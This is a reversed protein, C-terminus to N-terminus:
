GVPVVWPPVWTQIPVEILTPYMRPNRTAEALAQPLSEWSSVRLAEWGFARALQVYDPNHLNVAVTRGEFRLNQEAKVAGFGGDNFLVVTIGLDYQRATAMEHITFLAGGDGVMAVVPRKPNAVKAGLAAPLAYGLTGLGGPFLNARPEYVDLATGIWYCVMTYDHAFITDRPVSQSIQDLIAQVAPVHRRVFDRRRARMADVQAWPARPAPERAALRDYLGSLAKAADGIVGVEAPYRRGIETPDLDLHVIPEPFRVRGFGTIMDDFRTGVALLCDAEDLPTSSLMANWWGMGLALPHDDPLAGRGTTTTLVACQLHEALRRLPASADAARVGGGALILPRRSRALAAAAAELQEPPPAPREYRAPAAGIAVPERRNFLEHPVEVFVPRPRESQLRRMAEHVVAPIESVSRLRAGWGTVSRLMDTQNRLEHFTGTDRGILNTELQGCIYLIPVSDSYAQGLATLANSVGPGAVTVCVGPRGSSRAYGDAMYGAGQEHRATVHMIGPEGRLADYFNLIQTGPIGFVVEVGEAKLAAVLAQGANLEQM